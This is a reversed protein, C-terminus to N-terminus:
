HRGMGKSLEHKNEKIKKCLRTNPGVAEGGQPTADDGNGYDEGEDCDGYDEGEDCDRCLDCDHPCKYDRVLACGCELCKM